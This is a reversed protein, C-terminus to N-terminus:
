PRTTGEVPREAKCMISVSVKSCINWMVGVGGVSVEEVEVGLLHDALRM